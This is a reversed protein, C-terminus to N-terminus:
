IDFWGVTSSSWWEFSLMCNVVQRIKMVACCFFNMKIMGYALVFLCSQTTKQSCNTVVKAYKNLFVQKISKSYSAHLM